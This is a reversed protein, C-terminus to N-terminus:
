GMREVTVVESNRPDNGPGSEGVLKTAGEWGERVERLLGIVEELIQVNRDRNAEILRRIMFLYLSRLSEAITDGVEMDLAGLLESIIEQAHGIREGKLAVQNSQIAEMATELDLIARDYLMVILRGPTATAISVRRYQNYPNM